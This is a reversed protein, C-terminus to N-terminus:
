ILRRVVELLNSQNFSSKVIYANAGVEIGKERDEKRELVTVLVVPLETLKKDSRIKATLDFGNMRPMEVDSVVLDFDQTKLATIADIGDVATKVNYGASELINKLLMRSTISDEAILISKTEGTPEEESVVEARASVAPKVASKILDHINLIPVAKGSGLLAAGAINRVRTLQNGLTKVIVEQENLMEEVGFAIRKEAVSLALVTTFRSGGEGRGKKLPLELVSSLRVFSVARGNLEVTERNEVTKIEDNRVRLVREVNLTPLIFLQDAARVLIGRFTAISLPAVIRFATGKGIGTEISITGGLREVKERVIALGIGRGSLDTIIPSTSLGSHFILYLLEQGSLGDAEAQTLIGCRIATDKVKATDIGAGDDSVVVEVKGGDAQSIDIKIIGKGPKNAAERIEPREVGHDVCNRILHILPDKMEELIRRDIEMVEGHVVLDIDKGQEHSINRVFLPFGELLSSFPLMTIKKMDDLLSDVMKGLSRNFQRSSVTLGALSGEISKIHTQSWEFFQHLKAGPGKGKIQHGKGRREEGGTQFPTERETLTELYIKACEKKLLNIMSTIDRLNASLYGAILKSSLMEEAELLLSSLKAASVRVTEMGIDPAPAAPQQPSPPIAPPQVLDEEARSSLGGREIWSLEQIAGSIHAKEPPAEGEELSSLLMQIIDNIRYLTDFLGQSLPISGNKLLSFVSELSQCVTEIDPINVARAAGKLSHTARFLTEVIQAQMEAPPRKELDILGSSITKLHEQAELKFTSLLRKRFDAEKQKM